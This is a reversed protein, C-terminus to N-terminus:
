TNLQAWADAQVTITLDFLMTTVFYGAEPQIRPTSGSDRVFAIRHSPLSVENLRDGLTACINRVEARYQSHGAIDAATIIDVRLQAGWAVEREEGLAAIMPRQLQGSGVVLEVEVRPRSRQLEPADQTTYCTVGAALFAAKAATEISGEFDYIASASM